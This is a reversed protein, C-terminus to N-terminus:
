RNAAGEAEEAIQALKDELSESGAAIAMGLLTILGAQALVGFILVVFRAGRIELPRARM